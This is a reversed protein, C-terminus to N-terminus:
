HMIKPQMGFSKNCVYALMGAKKMPIKPLISHSDALLPMTLAWSMHWCVSQYITSPHDQSLFLIRHKMGICGADLHSIAPSLSSLDLISISFRMSKGSNCREM